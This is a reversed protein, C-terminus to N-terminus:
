VHARGIKGYNDHSLYYENTTSKLIPSSLVNPIYIYGIIDPNNYKEIISKVDIKTKTSLNKSTTTNFIHNTSKNDNTIPFFYLGFLAVIILLYLVRRIYKKKM